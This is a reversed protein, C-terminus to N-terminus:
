TILASLCTNDSPLQRLSNAQNKTTGEGRTMGPFASIWLLFLSLALYKM